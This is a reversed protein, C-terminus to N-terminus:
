KKVPQEPEKPEAEPEPPEIGLLEVEFLLVANPGIISGKGTEGYALQSPITFKTKGGVKMLQLGETWGKIVRNLPFVAPTGRKYSSDFETGNILAGRYHVKVRDTEKPSPGTGETIIQYQLGSATTIVDKEEAHTKLFLEGEAKNKEGEVKRGDEQKKRLAAQFDTMVKQREDAGIQAKDDGAAGDLLGQIIIYLDIESSISRLSQGINFGITYSIKQQQNELAIKKSFTKLAEQSEASENSGFGCVAILCIILLLNVSKKM